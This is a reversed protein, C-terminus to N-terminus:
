KEKTKVEKKGKERRMTEARRIREKYAWFKQDRKNM